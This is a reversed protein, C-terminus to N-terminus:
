PVVPSIRIDYDLTTTVSSGIFSYGGEIPLTVAPMPAACLPVHKDIVRLGQSPDWGRFGHGPVFVEPWAHMQRPVDATDFPLLYGSVFRGAIGLTRCAALYLATVDRCSGVGQALTFAATNPAGTERSQQRTRTFLATSLLDLFPLVQMGVQSALAHAFRAVSADDDPNARYVGLGDNTPQPLPLGIPPALLPAPSSTEVDLRSEISLGHTVGAFDLQTIHNGFEDLQDRRQLPWPDVQFVQSHVFVGESRPTLRLRHSALQVPVTYQYSTRHRVFARM